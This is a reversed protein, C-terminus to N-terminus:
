NMRTSRGLQVAAYATEANRQVQTATLKEPM